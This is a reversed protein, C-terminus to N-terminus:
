SSSAEGVQNSKRDGRKDEQTAGAQSQNRESDERRRASKQYRVRRTAEPELKKDKRPQAISATQNGASLEAESIPRRGESDFHRTADEQDSYTM